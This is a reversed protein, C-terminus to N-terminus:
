KKGAALKERLEQGWNHVLLPKADADAQKLVLFQSGDLSIDYNQHSPDTTYTGPLVLKREGISFATGTTVAVSMIGDPTRYYLARGSRGWMPENGGGESAKAPRGGSPYPQVYVEFRGSENSQYALWKGDPSLRPMQELAPSVVVPVPTRDTGTLKVRLIDASNKGGPATRILLWATDPTLLVENVPVDPQYLLEAQSSGDAPLWFFARKGARDSRFVIRKGDPAWEPVGNIGETTLKTLTHAGLDFVHIDNGTPGVITVVIKHGDPSFRPTYYGHPQAILPTEHGASALMLTATSQGNVHIFTGSNSLAALASTTAGNVRVSDQVQIPDGAAQGRKLDFPLAMLAGSISVYLINGDRYGLTAAAPTIGASVRRRTAFSWLSLRLADGSPGMTFLVTKGDPLAVPTSVVASSGGSDSVFLSTVAGGSSSVAWLGNSTGIVITDNAMWTIGRVTNNLSKGLSVVAGGDVPIKKIEGTLVPTFALWRGDPSFALNSMGEGIQHGTLESTRRTYTRLGTPGQTTYAIRDGQPSIALTAQAGDYIREGAPLDITARVVSDDPLPRARTWGWAAAVIAIVAVAVLALNVSRARVASGRASSSETHAVVAPGSTSVLAGAFEAATAFRDAPLKALATLVAHEVAAPVTDRSTRLPTPREVLVKAVIAQVSAGTFPAEGALMEYTVAGLAYVDSRADINKEGMAQEPSMYQPTGLSLGTQTMRENGASQVALSIGFDAVLAQGDHLLINEPKIDRHIVGHRHAYDLASAIERALRVAEPIPLQKERDLRTRLSEGTVLPMVYFLLGDANGSDLLPLIHAHQLKATTKIEALFREAGLAAGLDSHLVKIAVDRDHRVDHALYVTAMGGRGIERDISYRGTLADALRSTESM